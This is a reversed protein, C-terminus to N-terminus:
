RGFWRDIQRGGWEGIARGVPPLVVQAPPRVPAPV